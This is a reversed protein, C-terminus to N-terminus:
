TLITQHLNHLDSIILTLKFFDNCYLTSYLPRKSLLAFSEIEQLMQKILM